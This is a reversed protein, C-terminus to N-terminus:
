RALILNFIVALKQLMVHPLRKLEDVKWPDLGCAAKSRMRSLVRSLKEGDLADLQMVHRGAFHQGFHAHFDEWKPPDKSQYMQFIPLWAKQLLKDMESPDATLSGDERAIMNAKHQIDGKCWNYTTTGGESWDEILKGRWAKERQMRANKQWAQVDGRVCQVLEELMSLDPIDTSRWAGHHLTDAHLINNGIRRCKNWLHQQACTATCTMNTRQRLLDVLRRQLKGLKSLKM